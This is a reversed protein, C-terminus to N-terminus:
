SVTLTYSRAGTFKYKDTVTVTFTFSGAVSAKGRLVGKGNLKIGAPLTGATVKFKYKPVGGSATLAREYLVGRTANALSAPAVGIAAPAVRFEVKTKAKKPKAASDSVQVKPKFIGETTPTGSIVGTNPDLTLGPPLVGSALSWHYPATGAFAPVSSSHTVGVKATAPDANVAGFSVPTFTDQSRDPVGHATLTVIGCVIQTCDFTGGPTTYVATIPSGDARTLNFSFTGDAELNKNTATGTGGPHTWATAQFYNPNTSWDAPLTAPDPGFSVYIGFGMNATTSVNSGSVQLAQGAPNAGTSPSVSIVPTPAAAVPDAGGAAVVSGGLLGAAVGVALVRARRRYGVMARDNM